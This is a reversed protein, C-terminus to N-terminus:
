SAVAYIDEAYGQRLWSRDRRLRRFGGVEAVLDGVLLQPAGAVVAAAEQNYSFFLGQCDRRIWSVYDLAAPRPIEPLSDKNAVVDIPPEIHQLAQTPLIAIPRREEGYLSVHNEGLSKSLFYGQLVNILPLDIITYRCPVMQALRHAMGGYGGGIEVLHLRHDLTPLHTRIADCIRRAAYIQDPSDFSILRGAADIGYAAGVDPFDISLQLAAEVDAVLGDIGRSFAPGARGQEPNELPAIGQSEGLCVLKSLIYLPWFRRSLPSRPALTLSGFALGVVFESRFMSALQGALSVPDGGLVAASLASQRRQFDELAWIGATPPSECLARAHADILRQCLVVDSGHIPPAPRYALEVPPVAGHSRYLWGQHDFREIARASTAVWEAKRRAWSGLRLAATPM